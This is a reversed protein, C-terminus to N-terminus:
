AAKSRSKASLRDALASRVEKMDEDTFPASQGDGLRELLLAELRAQEQSHQDLRVLDRIYESASGYGGGSVRKEVYKKLPGPLSINMTDTAM